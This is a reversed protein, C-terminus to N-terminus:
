GWMHTRSELGHRKTKWFLWLRADLPYRCRLRRGRWRWLDHSRHASWYGEGTGPGIGTLRAHHDLALCEAASLPRPHFPHRARRDDDCVAAPRETEGGGEALRLADGLIEGTAPDQGVARGPISRRCDGPRAM